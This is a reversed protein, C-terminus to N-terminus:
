NNTSRTSLMAALGSRKIQAFGRSNNLECVRKLQGGRRHQVGTAARPAGYQRTRLSAGSTTSSPPSSPAATIQNCSLGGADAAHEHAYVAAHTSLTNTLGGDQSM